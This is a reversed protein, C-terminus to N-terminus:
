CDDVATWWVFIGYAAFIAGRVDVSTDGLSEANVYPIKVGTALAKTRTYICGNATVVAVTENVLAQSIAYAYGYGM